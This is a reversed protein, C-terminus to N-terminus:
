PVQTRRIATSHSKLRAKPRFSRIVVAAPVGQGREKEVNGACGEHCGGAGQKETCLGM